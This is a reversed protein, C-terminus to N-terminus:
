IKYMKAWIKMYKGKKAKKKGKKQFITRISKSELTPGPLMNLCHM